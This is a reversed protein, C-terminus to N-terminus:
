GKTIYINLKDYKYIAKGSQANYGDPEIEAKHLIVEGLEQVKTELEKIKAQQKRMQFLQLEITYDKDKLIRDLKNGLREYDERVFDSELIKYDKNMM